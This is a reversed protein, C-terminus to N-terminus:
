DLADCSLRLPLFLPLLAFVAALPLVPAPLARNRLLWLRARGAYACAAVSVWLCARMLRACALRDLRGCPFTLLAAHWVICSM